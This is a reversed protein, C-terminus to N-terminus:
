GTARDEWYQELRASVVVCRLALIANAGRLSWEMGSQKMRQGIVSKCGAEVVGSGVFLGQDYFDGYRMRERNTEFYGVEREIEKKHLPNRPSVERIQGIIKEVNGDELWDWWRDRHLTARLPNNHFILKSLDAIHEKAHYLDIIHIANPFHLQVLNRLWEAGDSVFVVRKAEFLGRGVAEGFLREGFEAATEIRGVFSTSAPDRVPRGEDDLRTQTFVCGLKAERTKASGDAQKGKRGELEGPVMPVGTGDAEIYMTEITKPIDLRPPNWRLGDHEREMWQHMDEGIAEAVREVDKASVTVGALERLDDRAEKFTCKSGMRAMMRRLAPTRSTAVVDLEEDGPYRTKGCRPCQFMSRAYPTPVAGMISTLRKHKLGKSKMREGCSCRIPEDRRGCGIGELFEGLAGAGAVLVASRIATEVAEFDM